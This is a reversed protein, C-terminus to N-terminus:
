DQPRVCRCSAARWCENNWTIGPECVAARGGPCSIQCGRFCLGAPPAECSQPGGSAQTSSVGAAAGGYTSAIYSAAWAACSRIQAQANPNHGQAGIVADLLSSGDELFSTFTAFAGNDVFVWDINQRAQATDCGAPSGVSRSSGALCDGVFARADFDYHCEEASAPVAAALVICGLAFCIAALRAGSNHVFPM